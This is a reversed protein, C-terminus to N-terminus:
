KQKLASVDAPRGGTIRSQHNVAPTNGRLKPQWVGAHPVGCGWV